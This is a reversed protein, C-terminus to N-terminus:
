ASASATGPGAGDRIYSKIEMDRSLVHESLMVMLNRTGLMCDLLCDSGEVERRSDAVRALLAAHEIRHERLGPFGIRAMLREEEAFHTRLNAAFRDCYSLFCDKPADALVATRIQGVEEFFARHQADVVPDGIALEDRWEFNWLFNDTMAGGAAQAWGAAM